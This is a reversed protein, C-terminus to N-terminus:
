SPDRQVGAAGLAESLVAPSTALALATDALANAQQGDRADEAGIVLRSSAVYSAGTSGFLLAPISVGVMVALLILVWHFKFIRQAAENLDV